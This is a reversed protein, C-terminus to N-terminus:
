CIYRNGLGSSSSRGGRTNQSSQPPFSPSPQESIPSVPEGASFRSFCVYAQLFTGIGGLLLTLFAAAFGMSVYFLTSRYDALSSSFAISLILGISGIVSLVGCGCYSSRFVATRGCHIGAMLWALLSAAGIALLPIFIISASLLIGNSFLSYVVFGLILSLALTIYCYKPDNRM